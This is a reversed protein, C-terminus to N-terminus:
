RVLIINLEAINAMKKKFAIVLEDVQLGNYPVRIPNWLDKPSGQIFPNGFGDTTEKTSVLTSDHYVFFDVWYRSM